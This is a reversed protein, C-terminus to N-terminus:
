VKLVRKKGTKSIFIGALEAQECIVVDGCLEGVLLPRNKRLSNELSIACLITDILPKILFNATDLRIQICTNVEFKVTTVSFWSNLLIM